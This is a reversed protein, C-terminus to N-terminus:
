TQRRIPSRMPLYAVDCTEKLAEIVNRKKERCRDLCIEIVTVAYNKFGM